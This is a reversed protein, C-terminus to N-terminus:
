VHAEEHHEEDHHFVIKYDKFVPLGLVNFPAEIRRINTACNSNGWNMDYQHYKEVLDATRALIDVGGVRLVVDPFNCTTRLIDQYTWCKYEEGACLHEVM